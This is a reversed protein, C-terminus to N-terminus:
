FRIVAILVNKWYLNSRRVATLATSGVTLSVHEVIRLLILAPIILFFRATEKLLV